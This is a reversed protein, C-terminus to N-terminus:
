IKNITYVQNRGLNTETQLPLLYSILHVVNIIIITCLHFSRSLSIYICMCLTLLCNFQIKLTVNHWCKGTVLHHVCAHSCTMPKNNHLRAVNSYQTANHQSCYRDESPDDLQSVFDTVQSICVGANIYSGVETYEQPLSCVYRCICM